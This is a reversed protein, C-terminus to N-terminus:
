RTLDGSSYKSWLVRYRGLAHHLRFYIGFSKAFTSSISTSEQYTVTMSCARISINVARGHLSYRSFIGIEAHMDQVTTATAERTLSYPVKFATSVIPSSHNFKWSHGKEQHVRDEM